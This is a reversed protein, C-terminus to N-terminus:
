ASTSLNKIGCKIHAVIGDAYLRALIGFTALESLRALLNDYASTRYEVTMSAYGQPGPVKEKAAGYYAEKVLRGREDLSREEM